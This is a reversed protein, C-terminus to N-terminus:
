PQSILCLNGFEHLSGGKLPEFDNM